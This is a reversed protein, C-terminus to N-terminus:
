HLTVELKGAMAKAIGIAVDVQEQGSLLDFGKGDVLLGNDTIVMDKVPLNIRKMLQAPVEVSLAQM